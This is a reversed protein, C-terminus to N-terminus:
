PYLAPTFIQPTQQKPELLNSLIQLETYFLPALLIQSNNNLFILPDSGGGGEESSLVAPPRILLYVHPSLLVLLM